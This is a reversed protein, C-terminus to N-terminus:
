RRTGEGMVERLRRAVIEEEGDEMMYPNVSFGEGRAPVEIRPEGKSLAQQVEAPTIGLAESDWSVSLHPAVNSRGPQTTTTTVSDLDSVAQEIATLRREWEKWEAEHDRKVWQEVAALLGM